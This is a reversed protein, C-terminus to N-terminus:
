QDTLGQNRLSPFSVATIMMGEEQPEWSTTLAVCMLTELGNIKEITDALKSEITDIRTDVNHAHGVLLKTFHAHMEKNTMKELNVDDNDSGTM